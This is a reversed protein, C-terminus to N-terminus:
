PYFSNTGVAVDGLSCPSDSFNTVNELIACLSLNTGISCSAKLNLIGWGPLPPM